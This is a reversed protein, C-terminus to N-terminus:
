RGYGSKDAGDRSGASPCPLHQVCRPPTPARTRAGGAASPGSGATYASRLADAVSADQGVLVEEFRSGEVRGDDRAHAPGDLSERPASVSQGYPVVAVATAWRRM